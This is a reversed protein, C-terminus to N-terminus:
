KGRSFYRHKTDESVSAQLSAFRAERENRENLLHQAVEEQYRRKEAEARAEYRRRLDLDLEQWRQGIIKGMEAFGIGNKSSENCNKNGKGLRSGNSHVGFHPSRRDKLILQRQEQFFLNYATLARKPKRKKSPKQETSTSSSAMSSISSKVKSQQELDHFAAELDFPVSQNAPQDVVVQNTITRVFEASDNETKIAHRKPVKFLPTAASSWGASGPRTKDSLGIGKGVNINAPMAHIALSPMMTGTLCVACDHQSASSMLLSQETDRGYMMRYQSSPLSPLNGSYDLRVPFLLGSSENTFSTPRTCDFSSRHTLKDDGNYSM